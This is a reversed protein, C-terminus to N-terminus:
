QNKWVKEFIKKKNKDPTKKIFSYNNDVININNDSLNNENNNKDKTKKGLKTEKMMPFEKVKEQYYENYDKNMVQNCKDMIKKIKDYTTGDPAEKYCEGDYQINYENDNECKDICKKM